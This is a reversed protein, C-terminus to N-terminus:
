SIPKNELENEIDSEFEFQDCGEYLSDSSFQWQLSNTSYTSTVSEVSVHQIPQSKQRRRRNNLVINLNEYIAQKGVDEIIEWFRKTLTTNYNKVYDVFNQQKPESVKNYIDTVIEKFQINYACTEIIDEVCFQHFIEHRQHNSKLVSEVKEM